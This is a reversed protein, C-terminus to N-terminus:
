FLSIVILEDNHFLNNERTAPTPACRTCPSIDLTNTRGKAQIVSQIDYLALSTLSLSLASFFRRDRVIICQEVIM